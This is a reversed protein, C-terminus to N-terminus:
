RVAFRDLIEWMPDPRVELNMAYNAHSAKWRAFLAASPGSEMVHWHYTRKGHGTERGIEVAHGRLMESLEDEMRVLAEGEDRVLLGDPTPRALTLTLAVHMDFLLHDIRKVAANVSAFMPKGDVIGRLIVWKDGTAKKAFKQVREHLAGLKVREAAEGELAIAGIWREVDDEGLAQDLGIFGIRLRLDRDDIAAFAPHEIVVNLKERTEDETVGFTLADFAIEHGGIRLKTGGVHEARRRAAHFEWTADNPATRRWRETLLRRGPHGRPSLTFALKADTVAGIEWELDPDIARVRANIVATLAEDPGSRASRELASRGEPWWAWFEEIGDKKM